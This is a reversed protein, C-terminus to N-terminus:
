QFPGLGEIARVVDSHPSTRPDFQFTAKLTVRGDPLPQLEAIICSDKFFRVVESDEESKVMFRGSM